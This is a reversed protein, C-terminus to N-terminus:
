GDIRFILKCIYRIIHLLFALLKNNNRNKLEGVVDDCKAQGYLFSQSESTQCLL